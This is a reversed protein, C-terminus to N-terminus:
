PTVHALASEGSRAEAPLVQNAREDHVESTRPRPQDDFQVARDMRQVAVPNVVILVALPEQLLTSQQHHAQGVLVHEEVELCSTDSRRRTRELVSAELEAWWPGLGHGRPTGWKHPVTAGPSLPHDAEAGVECRRSSLARGPIVTLGRERMCRTPDEAPCM